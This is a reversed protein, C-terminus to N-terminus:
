LAAASYDNNAFTATPPMPLINQSRTQQDFSVELQLDVENRATPRDEEEM